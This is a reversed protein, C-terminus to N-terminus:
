YRYFELDRVKVYDELAAELNGQKHVEVSVLYAKDLHRLYVLLLSDSHSSSECWM